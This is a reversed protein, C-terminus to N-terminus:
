KYQEPISPVPPTDDETAYDLKFLIRGSALRMAIQEGPLIQPDNLTIQAIGIEKDKTFKHHSTAAFVLNAEPSAKFACTEDFKAINNDDVKLTKTRYIHKLRGGQALSVKIQVNKGLNETGVITVTGRYTGNPALTRAFSSAQSVTRRHLSEEQTESSDTPTGNANSKSDGIPLQSKPDLNQVTAYDNNPITRDMELSAKAEALSLSKRKNAESSHRPEYEPLAMRNNSQSKKKKASNDHGFPSKLFKAGKDFGKDLGSTARELGNTAKGLGGAAVGIGGAAIGIGAQSVGTVTGIGASSITNFATSAYNMKKIENANVPPKSYGPTFTGQLKLSGQTDLPLEWNTREKPKTSSIDLSVLGLSDNDGARDWDYLRIEVRNRTRSPIQIKVTENWVPSLTKKVIESKHIEVGDVFIYFFPDSFGNRDKALLNKASIVKLDLVGTDIVSDCTPVDRSAPAYLCSLELSSGGFSVKSCGDYSNKLINLTDFSAESIIQSNNKPVRKESVRLIIKSHELDRIFVSFNADTLKGNRCKSSVFRPYPIDDVYVQLFTPSRVLEGRFLEISLVGSNHKVLQELSLKEKKSLKHQEEEFPDEIEVTEYAKPNKEMEKKREIQLEEFKKKDEELKKERDEIMEREEPSYVPITPVFSLSVNIYSESKRNKNTLYLKIIEESKDVPIYRGTQADMHLVKSLPIDTHGILRDKGVSQYDYNGITIKQKKSIIPFYLVRNFLPHSNDSFHSSKYDIRGNYSVTFYPDVDGMGSLNDIVNLDRVHIRLSGISERAANTGAFVGTMKVPKWEAKMFVNGRPSGKVSRQDLSLATLADSLSATYKTILSRNKFRENYVELSIESDSKSPIFIEVTEGWSPENINKLTRFSKVEKGDVFLTASPSLTGSPTESSVLDKIGHLTLKAIGADSDEDDEEDDNSADGVDPVDSDSDSEKSDDEQKDGTFSNKNQYRVADSNEQERTEVVPFWHMSYFLKGKTHNGHKLDSSLDTVVPDQMLKKLNIEVNGILTDKRADNFNFCSLTLRQNLDNLLIYKTENWVPSKIDSKITTRMDCQSGPSPRETKFYVYPDLTSATFESTQLDKASTITIALVGVADNAQSAIIDEVDVDLHHPAYLMPGVNSNIMTKVFSKLGPLFSMVDLGLTDGGVPKLAFEILPPELLQVSVIKINPFAQGFKIVVRMKGSVNIDETIVPLTKSIFSKGLTVGLVVKPNIKQKAERQTMDSVDNPTFAFSWIMEVVDKAAKTNSKIEKIMPAKSGLTFEDLSIADIGYGPAVGALAPNVNDKVQQSLVPMYIVWFKSLFSNLWLTTETRDSLTEEVAVRKLDDRVSAGFRRYESGFVAGASLFIFGLSWWSMGIYAFLWAGFCTGSILSINYYWDNYFTELIYAKIVKANSGGFSGTATSHFGGIAEWPFLSEPNEDKIAQDIKTEKLTDMKGPTNMSTDYENHKRSPANKFDAPHIKELPVSGVSGKLNPPPLKESHSANSAVFVDKPLSLNKEIKKDIPIDSKKTDKTSSSDDLIDKGYEQMVQQAFGKDDKAHINGKKPLYAQDERGPGTSVDIM